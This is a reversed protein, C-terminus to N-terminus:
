MLTALGEAPTGLAARATLHRGRRQARRRQGRGRRYLADPDDSIDFHQVAAFEDIGDDLTMDFCQVHAARPARSSVLASVKEIAVINTLLQEVVSLAVRGVMVLTVFLSGRGAIVGLLKNPASTSACAINSGVLSDIDGELELLKAPDLLKDTGGETEFQGTIVTVETEKAAEAILATIKKVKTLDAALCMESEQLTASESMAQDRKSSEEHEQTRPAPGPLDGEFLRTKCGRPTGEEAQRWGLRTVKKLLDLADGHYPHDSRRNYEEKLSPGTASGGPADVADWAARLHQLNDAGQWNFRKSSRSIARESAM